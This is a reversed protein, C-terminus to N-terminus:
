YEAMVYIQEPKFHDILHKHCTFILVQSSRSLEKILDIVAKTRQHDFHVFGDDIIIPYPFEPQLVHALAFRLSTYVQEGTAQSLEQMDFFMGDNREVKFVGNEEVFLRIYQGNTLIFLFKEAYQIIAPLKKQKYQDMTKLFSYKTIALQAWKKAQKNLISKQQHFEHLINSYTGGEELINKEYNLAALQEQHLKIKQLCTELQARLDEKKKQLDSETWKEILIPDKPLQEKLLVLKEALKEKEKNRQAQLRFDEENEISAITFLTHIEQDIEQKEKKLRRIQQELEKQKKILEKRHLQGEQSRLQMDKLRVFLENENKTHIDYNNATKEMLLRFEQLNIENEALQKEYAKKIRQLEKLQVIEDFAEEMMSWEMETSLFLENKLEMLVEENEIVDQHIQQYRDSWQEKEREDKELTLILQKWQERLQQQQKLQHRLLQNAPQEYQNIKEELEVLEARIEQDQPLHIKNSKAGRKILFLLILAIVGIMLLEWRNFVIAFASSLLFIGLIFSIIMKFQKQENKRFREEASKQQEVQNLQSKTWEYKQQLTDIHKENVRTQLTRFEQEPLLQNEIQSCQEEIVKIQQDIMKLREIYEDLRNKLMFHNQIGKKLRGKMEIGTNLSAVEEESVEYFHLDSQIRNIEGEVEAKKQELRNQDILWQQYQPKTEIIKQINAEDETTIIEKERQNLEDTIKNQEELAADLSAQLHLRRQQFNEFRDLGDIPFVIAQLPELKREIEIKEVYIPWLSEIQQISSREERIKKEESLLHNIEHQLEEIKIIVKGYQDNKKKGNKLQQELERLRQIQKNIVPNRGNPKFLKEMEKQLENEIKLLADTGSASASFLFRGIDEEKLQHIKQLGHVDFSFINRYFHENMGHLIEKLFDEGGTRGDELRVIVEEPSRGKIREIVATGYTKSNIKMVGGYKTHTKPEYRQKAQQKTPFGFLISHIFSMLTSKGAENKGYIVQLNPIDSLHYDELKGYAYIHLSLIKM